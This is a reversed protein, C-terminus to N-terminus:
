HEWRNEGECCAIATPTARGKCPRFCNEAFATLAADSAQAPLAALALIPVAARM